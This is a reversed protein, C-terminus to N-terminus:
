WPLDEQLKLRFQQNKGATLESSVEKNILERYPLVRGVMGTALMSMQVITDHERLNHQGAFEAVFRDLHKVSMKHYTSKHARKMM